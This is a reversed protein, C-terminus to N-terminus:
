HNFNYGYISSKEALILSAEVMSNASGSIFDPVCEVLFYAVRFYLCLSVEETPLVGSLSKM